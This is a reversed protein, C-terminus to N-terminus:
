CRAISGAARGSREGCRGACWCNTRRGQKGDPQVVRMSGNRESVLFRGEPLFGAGVPKAAGQGRNAGARVSSAGNGHPQHMDSVIAILIMAAQALIVEALPRNAVYSPSELSITLVKM